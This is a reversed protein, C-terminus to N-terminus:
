QRAVMVFGMHPCNKSVTPDYYYWWGRSCSFMMQYRREQRPGFFVRAMVISQCSELVEFLLSRQQINQVFPM